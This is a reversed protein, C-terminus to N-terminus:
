YPSDADIHQPARKNPAPTPLDFSGDAQGAPRGPQTRGRPPSPPPAAARVPPPAGRSPATVQSGQTGQAGQARTLFLEIAVDQQFSVTQIVPLYGPAEVRLEHKGERPFVGHFPNGELPKGDLVITASPPTVRVSVEISAPMTPAVGVANGTLAASRDDRVPAIRGQAAWLGGVILASVLVPLAWRAISRSRSSSEPPQSSGHPPAIDASLPRGLTSSMPLSPDTRRDPPMSSSPGNLWPLTSLSSLSHTGTVSLASTAVSSEILSRISAREEQFRQTMLAVLDATSARIGQENLFAELAERMELATAYRADVDVALARECIRILGEPVDPACARLSPVDGTGLRQLVSFDVERGWMRQRALIEWLMVGVSFLDARRDVKEGRAQEPAMYAIKGKLVGVRTMHEAGAAKAIGFDVVKTHGEYTIFVNQPSVDRHVVGLPRGDYDCLEHAYHLGGLLDSVIRLFSPLLRRGEDNAALRMARRLTQGELYEMVLYYLGQDEGVENTQVVNPHNLKAALRAEDLFMAVHEEDHANEPKLIKVVSFKKFGVMGSAMALYVDAMGGGGLRAVLRHRGVLPRGSAIM